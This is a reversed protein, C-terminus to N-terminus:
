RIQEVIREGEDWNVTHDCKPCIYFRGEIDVDMNVKKKGENENM